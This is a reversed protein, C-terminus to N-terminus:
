SRSARHLDRQRRPLGGRGAEVDHDLLRRRGIVRAESQSFMLIVGCVAPGVQSIQALVNRLANSSTWRTAAPRLVRQTM